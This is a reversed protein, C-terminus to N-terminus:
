LDFRVEPYKRKLLELEHRDPAGGCFWQHPNGRFDILQILLTCKECKVYEYRIDRSNM